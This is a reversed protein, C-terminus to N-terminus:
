APISASFAALSAALLSLCLSFAVDDVITSSWARYPLAVPM